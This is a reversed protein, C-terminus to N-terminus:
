EGGPDPKEGNRLNRLNGPTGLWLLAMDLDLTRKRQLAAIAAIHPGTSGACAADGAIVTGGSLITISTAVTLPEPHGAPEAATPTERSLVAKVTM